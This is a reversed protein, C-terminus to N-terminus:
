SRINRVTLQANLYSQLLYRASRTQLRSLHNLVLIPAKTLNDTCFRPSARAEPELQRM